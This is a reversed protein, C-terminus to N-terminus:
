RANKNMKSSLVILKGNRYGWNTTARGSPCCTADNPGYFYERVTLRGVQMRVDQRSNGLITAPENPPQQRPTVLGLLRPAGSRGSFIALSYLLDGDATGGNNDCLLPVAADSVNPAEFHGYTVTQPWESLNFYRTAPGSASAYGRSDQIRVKGDRLRLPHSQLCASGPVTVDKLDAQHLDIGVLSGSGPAPTSISSPSPTVSTSPTPAYSSSPTVVQLKDTTLQGHFAVPVLVGVVAVSALATLVAGAKARRRRRVSRLAAEVRAASPSPSPPATGDSLTLRRSPHSPASRVTPREDRKRNPQPRFCETSEKRNDGEDPTASRPARRQTRSHGRLGDKGGAPM